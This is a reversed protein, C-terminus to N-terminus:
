KTSKPKSTASQDADARKFSRLTNKNKEYVYPYYPYFMKSNLATLKKDTTYKRFVGAFNEFQVSDYKGTDILHQIQTIIKWITLQKSKMAAENIGGVQNVVKIIWLDIFLFRLIVYFNAIKYGHLNFYPICDFNACNYFDLFPKDVLGTQTKFEMYYTYKELRFDKPIFLNQKKSHIKIKKKSFFKKLVDLLASPDTAGMVQIKEVNHCKGKGYILLDYAWYGILILDSPLSNFLDVKGGELISRKADACSSGGVVISSGFGGHGGHGGRWNDIYSDALNDFMEMGGMKNDIDSQDIHGNSDDSNSNNDNVSDNDNDNVSNNDNDSDNNDGRDNHDIDDLNTPTTVAGIGSDLDDLIEINPTTTKEDSIGLMGHTIQDIPITKKTVSTKGDIDTYEYYNALDRDVDLKRYSAVHRTPTSNSYVSVEHAIYASGVNSSDRDRGNGRGNGGKKSSKHKLDSSQNNKLDSSQNHKLDSSQNHRLDREISRFMEQDYGLKKKMCELLLIKELKAAQKRESIQGCDYMQYYVDILEIEAPLYYLDNIIVPQIIDIPEKNNHKHVKFVRAIIRLDYEIVFEEDEKVTKMRTLKSEALDRTMNYIENTLDNSVSLPWCTYLKYEHTAIYTRDLVNCLINRDSLMIRNKKCYEEITQYVISFRDRDEKIVPIAKEELYDLYDPLLTSLM